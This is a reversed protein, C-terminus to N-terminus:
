EVVFKQSISGGEVELKFIYVTNTNLKVSLEVMESTPIEDFIKLKQGYVNFLIGREIEILDPNEIIIKDTRNIYFLEINEAKEIESPEPDTDNGSEDSGEGEGNTDEESEEEDGDTNDEENEEEEGTEEETGEEEEEEPNEPSIEEKQFVISYRNNITGPVGTTVFNSVRLNHFTKLLSDKVYIKLDAPVNKLEEISISFEGEKSIKIGLPLERKKDFDPVGQIVFETSDIIWYMDEKNREILPADYGLDFGTRTKADRTVLIERYLGTPSSFEIWIKAREDQYPDEAPKEASKFISEDGPQDDTVFARQSNNFTVTGGSVTALDALEPALQTSVYFAQGVPIFRLPKTTAREGTANIREDNAVAEVGGSLNLTAYGGIYEELYHTKGSFHDWFYLSGNFVNVANTGAGDSINDKIFEYADLASPYPNGILYDNGKTLNLTIVGNNPKGIFVYNQRDTIAAAGSTGKMTFGEGTQIEGSNGVQKWQSYTNSTSNTFINLWYSSVKVPSQRPGDAWSFHTGFNIVKPDAPNTGDRLVESITYGSNNPEGISSVPSSWYNYNYSSRTGQQDREIYGSSEPALISGVDQLLQSEGILDIAGNLKLYHTVRLSQGPIIMQDAMSANPISLKGTESILGLLTINQNGSNLDHSIKAINWNIPEGNIGLSNPADWTGAGYKWPTSAIAMDRWNGPRVTFYPLPATREQTTTINVLKGEPSPTGTVGKTIGGESNDMKYYGILNSWSLDGPVNMPLVEGKVVGGNSVIEQNMMFHLQDATLATNWIRVEQIWGHYFNKPVQPNAASYMAGVMFPASIDAPNAASTSNGVPIGDVYLDVRSGSYVAAIHYWRNTGIKSSTSVSSNGWRFAPSGNNIVLDYGGAGPDDANRKSFITRIGDVSHPKIWAEISFSGSTLPFATNPFIIHDDVGDFDLTSCNGLYTVKVTDVTACNGLTDTITWALTYTGEIGPAGSFDSFPDNPSAITGGAPSEAEVITWIGVGTGPANAALTTTNLGCSFTQDEGANATPLEVPETIIVTEIIQCGNADIVTVTYEGAKLGTATATTQGNPDNWLYNYYLNGEADVFPTGGSATVTAEANEGFCLPNVMTVEGTVPADPGLITVTETDSNGRADQVYVTYDGAALNIFQDRTQYSTSEGTLSYKYPAFGGSAKVKIIGSTDGHCLIENPIAEVDVPTPLVLPEAISYCFANNNQGCDKKSVNTWTIYFNEISFSEGCTFEIPDKTFRIFGGIKNEKNDNLDDDIEAGDRCGKVPFAETNGDKDTLVYVLEIYPNYANASKDVKLFVYKDQNNDCSNELDIPVGNIDGIYFNNPDFIINNSKGCPEYCKGIYQQQTVVLTENKSDKVTLTITKNGTTTYTVKHEGIGTRVPDVADTGFDWTYTYPGVGGVATLNEVEFYTTRITTEDGECLTRSVIYAQLADIIELQKVITCGKSDKITVEYNGASLGTATKTTQLVATEGAKRWEYTYGPTGGTPNATATGTGTGYVTTRTTVVEATVPIAPQTIELAPDLTIICEPAAADRIYVPYNGASLNTFEPSAQWTINDISYEFNNSGGTSGTVKIIGDSGEFCSVDTKNITATIQEPQNITVTKQLSCGNADIVFITHTGASLDSFTTNSVFNTNDLSYTYPATGGSVTGATITGDSGGYCSVPTSSPVTMALESPQSLNIPTELICGKKDRIYLTYNGAALNEFTPSTTYNVNDLSFVYQGNGGSVTGATIIGDNGGNCSVMTLAPATMTLPEPETITIEATVTCGKSDKATLTYVGATLGSFSSTTTFNTGDISYTYGSNGGTVAGATIIGDSGGSCSVPTIVPAAMSLVPPQTVVVSKEIKCDKSDKITVTYTGATLGTFSNSSSFDIGNISYSYGGNGGTVGTVTITGDNGGNCSISTPTPAPATLPDPQSITATVTETCGKSDQVTITYTGAALGSFINSTSFSTGDISYQYGSNGGTVGNVTITGDNGGNCSVVTTSPVPVSLADPQSITATITESCGNSDRVTITYNGAPLGSFDNSAQFTSGNRSYQYGATGGSVTGITISGDSEGFCSVDKTTVGSINLVDPQSITAVESDTCGNADKVWVKYNSATLGQFLNSSQFNIGDISYQFGATGGTVGAVTITGDNKGNCSVNTQTLNTIILEQPQSIDITIGSSGASNTATLTYQGPVLNSIDESTSSFSGPGTWSFSEAGNITVNIAGDAAGFCSVQSVSDTTITPEATQFSMFFGAGTFLLFFLVLIKLSFTIKGM